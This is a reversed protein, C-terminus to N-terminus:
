LDMDIFRCIWWSIYKQREMMISHHMWQTCISAHLLLLLGGDASYMHSAPPPPTTNSRGRFPASQPSARAGSFSQLLLDSGLAELLWIFASLHSKGPGPTEWSTEMNIMTIKIATSVAASKQRIIDWRQMGLVDLDGSGDTMRSCAASWKLAYSTLDLELGLSHSGRHSSSEGDPLVIEYRSIM